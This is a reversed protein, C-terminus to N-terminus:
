MERLVNEYWRILVFQSVGLLVLGVVILVIGLIQMQEASM